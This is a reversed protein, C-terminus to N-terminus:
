KNIPKKPPKPSYVEDFKTQGITGPANVGGMSSNRKYIDTCM